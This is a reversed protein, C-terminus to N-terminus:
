IAIAQHISVDEPTKKQLMFHDRTIEGHPEANDHDSPRCWVSPDVVHNTTADPTHYIGPYNFYIYHRYIIVKNFEVPVCLVAGDFITAQGAQKREGIAVIKRLNCVGGTLSQLCRRRRCSWFPRTIQRVFM